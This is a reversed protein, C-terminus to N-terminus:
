IEENRRVLAGFALSGCFITIYSLILFIGGTKITILLSLFGVIVLLSLLGLTKDTIKM